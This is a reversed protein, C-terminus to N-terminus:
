NTKNNTKIKQNIKRKANKQELIEVVIKAQIGSALNIKVSHKGVKKIPEKIEIKDLSIEFGKKKLADVIEQNSISGFLKGDKTAKTKIELVLDKFKGATQETKKLEEKEKQIRIEREKKTRSITEATAAIVLKKPFLFNRAYGDAVKKIEFKKGLGKIDQLLIIQM